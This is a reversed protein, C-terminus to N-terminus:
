LIYAIPIMFVIVLACGIKAVTGLIFGVFTGLAVKGAKLSDQKEIYEGVAAGLLPGLIIGLPMLFIGLMGGIFAGWLAKKSAGTMKAGMLGAIFDMAMGVITIVLAIIIFTISIYQYNHVYGLLWFGGFLIPLSPIAPHITGALGGIMLLVALCILVISM